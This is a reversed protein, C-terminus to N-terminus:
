ERLIHLLINLDRFGDTKDFLNFRMSM